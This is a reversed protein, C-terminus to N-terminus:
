NYNHQRNYIMVKKASRNQFELFIGNTQKLIHRGLLDYRVKSGVIRAGIIFNRSLQLGLALDIVAGDKSIKYDHGNWETCGCPCDGSGVLHSLYWFSNDYHATLNWGPDGAGLYIVPGLKIPRSLNGSAKPLSKENLYLNFTKLANQLPFPPSSIDTRIFYSVPKSFIWADSVGEEPNSQFVFCHLTDTFLLSSYQHSTFQHNIDSTDYDILTDAATCTNCFISTDMKSISTIRFLTSYQWGSQTNYDSNFSDIVVDALVQKYTVRKFKFFWMASVTSDAYRAILKVSHVGAAFLQEATQGDIHMCTGCNVAQSTNPDIYSGMDSITIGTNTPIEGDILWTVSDKVLQHDFRICSFQPASSNSIGLPAYYVTTTEFPAPDLSASSHVIQALLMIFIIPKLCLDIPKSLIKNKM